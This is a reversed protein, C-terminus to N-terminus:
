TRNRQTASRLVALLLVAAIIAAGSLLLSVAVGITDSLHEFVFTVLGVFMGTVAIVMYSFTDRRVALVILGAGVVFVLLEAWIVSGDLGAIYPGAIAFAGFVARATFRPEFLQREALAVGILGVVLVAMGTITSSFDDSSNGVGLALVFLAGGLALLQLHSPSVVWLVAAVLTAAVGVILLAYHDDIGSESNIVAVTGASLAVAVLWIASGARRYGPEDLTRLAFGALLTLVAPVALSAIRAWPELEGWNEAGLFFAGAAAIAIGLYLVAEIVGPRDGAPRDPLAREFERIRQAEEDGVLGADRWRRLYEELNTMPAGYGVDPAHVPGM